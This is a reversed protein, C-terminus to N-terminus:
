GTDPTLQYSAAAYASNAPFDSGVRGCQRTAAPRASGHFAGGTRAAPLGPWSRRLLAEARYARGAADRGGACEVHCAVDPLPAPVLDRGPSACRSRRSMPPHRRDTRGCHACAGAMSREGLFPRRRATKGSPPAPRSMATRAPRTRARWGRARAQRDVVGHELYVALLERVVGSGEVGTDLIPALADALPDLLPDREVGSVAALADGGVQEEGGVRCRRVLRHDVERAAVGRTRVTWGSCPCTNRTGAATRGPSSRGPGARGWRCPCRRVRSGRAERCDVPAGVGLGERLEHDLQDPVEAAADVVQLRAAVDVGALEGEVTQAPATCM